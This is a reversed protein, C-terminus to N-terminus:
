DPKKQTLEDLENKLRAKTVEKRLKREESDPGSVLAAIAVIPLATLLIVTLLDAGLSIGPLQSIVFGLQAVCFIYTAVRLLKNM